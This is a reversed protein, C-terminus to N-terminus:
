PLRTDIIEIDPYNDKNFVFYDPPFSTKTIYKDIHIVNKIGNKYEIEIKFIFFSKNSVHILLRAIDGSEKKPLLEIEHVIRGKIDTKVGMYKSNSGTKYLEFIMNPNLFQVDEKAPTSITLEDWDKQLLWQTTGDFWSEMDPTDLHFMEEKLDIKGEFSENVGQNKDQVNMAFFISINGAEKLAESAKDLVIKADDKQASLYYMGIFLGVITFLVRKM